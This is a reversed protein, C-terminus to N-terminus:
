RRLYSLMRLVEYYVFILGVLLGFAMAWAYKEPLGYQIGREIQDFDLIFTLAGVVIVVVSFVIPLAGVHGTMGARLGLNGGFMYVVLNVLMLAVVGILAGVVVRTFRPTARIVRSKYLFAMGAFVGFTGIVAQVVIGPYYADFWRSIVGLLVGQVVAYASIVVPNTVRGFTIVMALALGALMSGFLAVGTLPGTDPLAVWSVAATFGTILLLTVTRVVVDDLTVARREVPPAYPQNPYGYQAYPDVTAREQAAGALVRSLASNSSKVVAEKAIKAALTGFLM